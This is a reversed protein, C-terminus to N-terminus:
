TASSPDTVMVALSGAVSPATTSCASRAAAPSQSCGCRRCESGASSVADASSAAALGSALERAPSPSPVQRALRASASTSTAPVYRDPFIAVAPL